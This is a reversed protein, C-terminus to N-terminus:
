IHFITTIMNKDCPKDLHLESSNASKNQGFYTLILIARFPVLISVIKGDKGCHNAFDTFPVLIEVTLVALIILDFSIKQAWVYEKHFRSSSNRIIM